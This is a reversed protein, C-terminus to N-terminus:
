FLLISNIANSPMMWLEDNELRYFLMPIIRVVIGTKNVLVGRRSCVYPVFPTATEDNSAEKEYNDRRVMQIPQSIPQDVIIDLDDAEFPDPLSPIHVEKDPFVGVSQMWEGLTRLGEIFGLDESETTPPYKSLSEGKNVLVPGHRPQNRLSVTRSPFADGMAGVVLLAVMWAVLCCRRMALRSELVRRQSGPVCDVSWENGCLSSHM